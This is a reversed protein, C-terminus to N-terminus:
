KFKGLSSYNDFNCNAFELYQELYRKILLVYKVTFYQNFLQKRAANSM